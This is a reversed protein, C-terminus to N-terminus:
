LGTVKRHRAEEYAVFPLKIHQLVCCNMWLTRLYFYNGSVIHGPTETSMGTYCGCYLKNMEGIDLKWVCQLQHDDHGHYDEGRHRYICQGSLPVELMSLSQRGSCLKPANAMVTCPITWRCTKRQLVAGVLHVTVRKHQGLTHQNVDDVMIDM